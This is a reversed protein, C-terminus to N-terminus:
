QNTALGLSAAAARQREDLTLFDIPGVHRELYLACALHRLDAGRLRAHGPVRRYEDTLPEAPFVWTLWSLLGDEDQGVDERALASRMEAELLNDSFLRDCAELRAAIDRGQPEAFAIAVLCSTDVYALRM